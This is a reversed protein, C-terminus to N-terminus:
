WYPSTRRGTTSQLWRDMCVWHFVQRCQIQCWVLATGDGLNRLCISCDGIQNQQTKPPPTTALSREPYRSRPYHGTPNTVTQPYYGSSITPITAPSLLPPILANRRTYHTNPHTTATIHPNISPYPRWSTNNRSICVANRRGNHSSQETVSIFRTNMSQYPRFSRTHRSTSRYPPYRGNPGGDISGPM